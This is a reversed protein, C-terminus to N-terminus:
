LGKFRLSVLPLNSKSDMYKKDQVFAKKSFTVKTSAPIGAQQLCQPHINSFCSQVLIWGTAHLPPRVSRRRQILAESLSKKRRTRFGVGCGRIKKPERRLKHLKNTYYVSEATM